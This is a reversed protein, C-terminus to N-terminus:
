YELEAHVIRWKGDSREFRLSQRAHRRDLVAEVVVTRAGDAATPSFRLVLSPDDGDIEAPLAIPAPQDNPPTKSPENLQQRAAAAGALLLQRLQADQVAHRTMKTETAFRTAMALVALSM